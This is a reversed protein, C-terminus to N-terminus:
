GHTAVREAEAQVIRTGPALGKALTAKLRDSERRIVVNDYPDGDIRQRISCRKSRISEAIM